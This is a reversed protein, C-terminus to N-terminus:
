HPQALPDAPAECAHCAANPMVTTLAMGDPEGAVDISRTVALAPLALAVLKDARTAAVWATSEDAVLLGVPVVGAVSGMGTDTGSQTAVPVDIKVRATERRDRVDFAVVEGSGACSVLVTGRPTMAIRIPQGPVELTALVGLDRADFVTITGAERAGVWIEGGGTAVAIAESGAGTAVDAIKRGAALDIVSTSGGRLNTVFARLPSPTVAVMHSGSQGTAVQM